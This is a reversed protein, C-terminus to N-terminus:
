DTKVNQSQREASYFKQSQREPSYFKFSIVFNTIFATVRDERLFFKFGNHDVM